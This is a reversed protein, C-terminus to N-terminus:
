KYKYINEIKELGTELSLKVDIFKQNSSGCWKLEYSALEEKFEGDVLVDIYTLLEKVLPNKHSIIESWEYGTWLWVTKNPNCEKFEQLLTILDHDVSDLPDGGLISIGTIYPKSTHEIFKKKKEETWEKGGNFDWSSKNFCGKCHHTCGQIFLSDRIGPGNKIDDKIYGAYRM